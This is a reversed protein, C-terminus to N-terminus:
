RRRVMPRLRLQPELQEPLPPRLRRGQPRLTRRLGSVTSIDKDQLHKIDEETLIKYSRRRVEFDPKVDTEEDESDTGSDDYYDEDDSAMIVTSIDNERLRKIDTLRKYCQRLVESETESFNLEENVVVNDNVDMEEVESDTGSNQYYNDENSAM